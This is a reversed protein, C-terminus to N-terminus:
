GIFGAVTGGAIMARTGDVFKNLAGAVVTFVHTLTYDYFLRLMIILSFSSQSLSFHIEIDLYNLLPDM